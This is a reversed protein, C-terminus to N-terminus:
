YLVFVDGHPVTTVLTTEAHGNEERSCCASTSETTKESTTDDLHFAETTEGAPRPDEDKLTKEGEDDGDNSEEVHVVVRLGGLEQSLGFLLFDGATKFLVAAREGVLIACFVEFMSNGIPLNPAMHEDGKANVGRQVTEREEQWSDDFGKAVAVFLSLEHTNRRVDNSAEDADSTSVKGILQASTTDEHDTESKGGHETDDELDSGVVRVDLVGTDEKESATDVGVDRLTDGPVTVVNTTGGLTTDTDGHVDTETVKTTDKSREDVELLVRGLEVSTVEDKETQHAHREDKLNEHGDVETALVGTSICLVLTRPLVSNGLLLKLALTAVIGTEEAVSNLIGLSFQSDPNPIRVHPPYQARSM